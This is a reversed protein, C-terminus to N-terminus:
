KKQGIKRLAAIADDVEKKSVQEIKQEAKKVGEEIKEEFKKQKNVLYTLKDLAKKEEGSMTKSFRRKKLEYIRGLEKLRDLHGRGKMTPILGFEAFFEERKRGKTKFEHKTKVEEMRARINMIESEKERSKEDFDEEKNIIEEREEKGIQYNKNYVYYMAGGAIVLIMAVWIGTGLNDNKEAKTIESLNKVRKDDEKKLVSIDELKLGQTVDSGASLEWSCYNNCDESKMQTDFAFQKADKNRAEVECLWKNSKAKCFSSGSYFKCCGESCWEQEQVQPIEGATCKGAFDLKCSSKCMIKKCDSVSLCDKGQLFVDQLSCNSYDNCEQQAQESDMEQCYRASEPYLFCGNIASVLYISMCFILGTIIISRMHMRYNFM